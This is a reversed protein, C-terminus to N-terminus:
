TDRYEPRSIWIRSIIRRAYRQNIIRIGDSKLGLSKLVQGYKETMVQNLDKTKDAAILFSDHICLVPIDLNTFHNIVKEAMMADFNQLKIGQGSFFYKKIPKHTILIEDIFSLYDLNNQSVYEYLTTDFNIRM